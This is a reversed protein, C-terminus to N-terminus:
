ASRQYIRVEDPNMRLEELLYGPATSPGGTFPGTLQNAMAEDTKLGARKSARLASVEEETLGLREKLSQTDAEEDQLRNRNATARARALTEVGRLARKVDDAPPDDSDLYDFDGAYGDALLAAADEPDLLSYYDEEKDFESAVDVGLQAEQEELKSRSGIEKEFAGLTPIMSNAVDPMLADVGHRITYKGEGSKGTINYSDEERSAPLAFTVALEDNNWDSSPPEHFSSATEALTTNPENQASVLSTDDAIDPNTHGDLESGLPQTPLEEAGTRPISDVRQARSDGRTKRSTSGRPRGRRRKPAIIDPTSPEAQHVDEDAPDLKLTKEVNFDTSRNRVSVEGDIPLIKDAETQLMDSRDNGDSGTPLGAVLFTPRRTATTGSKAAHCPRRRRPIPATAINMCGQSRLSHHPIRACIICISPSSTGLCAPVLM